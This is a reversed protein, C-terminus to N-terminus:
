IIILICLVCLYLLIFYYNKKISTAAYNVKEKMKLKNM